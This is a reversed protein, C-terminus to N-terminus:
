AMKNVRNVVKNLYLECLMFNVLKFYVILQKKTYECHQTVMVVILKLVKENGWLSIGYGKIM